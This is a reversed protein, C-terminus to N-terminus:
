SRNLENYINVINKVSDNIDYGSKLINNKQSGRVYEKTSVIKKAWIKASNSLNEKMVLNTVIAENPINESIICRLGTAQAEVLSIGLGEWFSPLIYYDMANLFQSIENSEGVFIIDEFVNLKRSLVKVQNLMVGNGIFLLKVNNDLKKLESFVEIVFTPNKAEVVRALYGLTFKGQLNLKNRSTDRLDEDYDIIESNIANKIIKFNEKKSINNGFLWKGALMSCAMFYDAEFRLPFQLVSKVFSNIGKGNSTSHSHIITKLGFEKAIPIFILAYSRIHSHLIRYEKHEKLFSNWAKYVQIINKGNFKPLVFVRGGLNEIEKKFHIETPQDIIFDFQIKSRDINRYINMVFSQSGGINLSGIMHLIRIQNQQPIDM